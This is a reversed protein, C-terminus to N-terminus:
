RDRRDLWDILVFNQLSRSEFSLTCFVGSILM